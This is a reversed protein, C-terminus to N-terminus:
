RQGETNLITIAELVDNVEYDAPPLDAPWPRGRVWISHLGAHQAGRVDADPSDGIHWGYGPEVGCRRAALDFLRPDPKRIGTDGSVAVGDVLEAIGTARLKARQVDSAGNTAIGVTWGSSRLAGLAELVAPPCTVAAAMHKVYALWLVDATELLGFDSRLRVFDEPRARAALEATMWEEISPPYGFATCFEGVCTTFAADRDVLTNDLDFLVFRTM